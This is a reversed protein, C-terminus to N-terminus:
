KWIRKRNELLTPDVEPIPDPCGRYARELCEHSSGGTARSGGATAGRHRFLGPRFCVLGKCENSRVGYDIGTERDQLTTM